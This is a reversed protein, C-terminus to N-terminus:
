LAPFITYKWTRERCCMTAAGEAHSGLSHVAAKQVQQDSPLHAVHKCSVPESPLVWIVQSLWQM